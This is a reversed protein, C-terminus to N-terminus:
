TGIASDAPDLLFYVAAARHETQVTFVRLRHSGPALSFAHVDNAVLNGVLARGDSLDLRGDYVCRLDHADADLRETWVEVPLPGGPYDSRTAVAVTQPLAVVDEDGTEPVPYDTALADSISIQAYLPLVRAQVLLAM